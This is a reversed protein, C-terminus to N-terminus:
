TWLACLPIAFVRDSLEYMGRGAHIVAGATFRDGLQDRLWLLHKADGTTPASTAKFELGVVRLADLEIVLDVEHRGSEVRLHHATPRPYMLALESRLQATGFADFFRGLLNPDAHISDSTLRLAAAALGADIWYRKGSKMLRHLRNSAWAPIIDLIYLNRLLQDYGGATKTTVGAARSITTDSPMGANNLALVNLYHRLKVPDKTSGLLGADRTVLDDLYSTLWVTRARNSRESYVIEPFGGRLLVDVYRNIDPPDQPVTMNDIGSAALRTLFAPGRLPRVIQIEREVLPYMNVRVVRGTGAWTQHNLEARVSGTLLFQGASHDRDVVRKVAALVEPVEQWEDILLPRAARRLAADPDARFEQAVGPEDLRAINGALHVATSTKGAARAGTVMVAPFEDFLDKLHGDALRPQYRYREPTTMLKTCNM